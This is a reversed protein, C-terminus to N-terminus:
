RREVERPPHGYGRPANTADATEVATVAGSSALVVGGLVAGLFAVIAVPGWGARTVDGLFAIGVAGPLVTQGVVLAAAGGSLVLVRGM